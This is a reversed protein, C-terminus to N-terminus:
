KCSSEILTKSIGMAFSSKLGINGTVLEAYSEVYDPENGDLLIESAAKALIDDLVNRHKTIKHNSYYIDHQRCTM